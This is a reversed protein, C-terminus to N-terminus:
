QLVHITDASRFGYANSLILFDQEEYLSRIEEQYALLHFLNNIQRM